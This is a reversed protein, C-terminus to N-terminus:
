NQSRGTFRPQFNVTQGAASLVVASQFLEAYALAGNADVYYAGYITQPLGSGTATFTRVTEDTEAENAANTSSAGWSSCAIGAYGGFSAQIASYTSLTDTSIPTHNSAFLRLTGGQLLGTRIAELLTVEAVDPVVLAL